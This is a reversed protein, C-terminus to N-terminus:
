SWFKWYRKQRLCWTSESQKVHGAYKTLCPNHTQGRPM